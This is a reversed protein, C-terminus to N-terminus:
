VLSAIVVGTLIVAIGVGVGHAAKTTPPKVVLSKAAPAKVTLSARAAASPSSAAVPAGAAPKAKSAAPLPVTTASHSSSGTKGKCVDKLKGAIFNVSATLSAGIAESAFLCIFDKVMANTDISVTIGEDSFSLKLSDSVIQMWNQKKCDIGNLVEQVFYNLAAHIQQNLWQEGKTVLTVCLKDPDTLILNCTSQDVGGMKCLMQLVSRISIRIGFGPITISADYASGVGQLVIM